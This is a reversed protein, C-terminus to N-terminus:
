HTLAWNVKAGSTINHRDCFGGNVEVVYKAPEASPYSIDAYPTTNKAINLVTKSDDIFIMDLPIMTNRMWFSRVQIDPFIFLMGQNEDMSKRNMLGLERDFENSAIQINIKTIVTGTSDIFTLEGDKRFMYEENNNIESKGSYVIIFYIAAIIIIGVATIKYIVPLKRLRNTQETKKKKTM